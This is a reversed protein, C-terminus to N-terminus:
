IKNAPATAEWPYETSWPGSWSGAPQAKAAKVEEPTGLNRVKVFGQQELKAKFGAAGGFLDGMAYDNLFIIGAENAHEAFWATVIGTDGECEFAIGSVFHEECL